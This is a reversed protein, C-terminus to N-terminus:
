SNFALILMIRRLTPALTLRGLYDLGDTNPSYAQEMETGERGGSKLGLLMLNM